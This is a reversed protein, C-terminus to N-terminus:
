DVMESDQYVIINEVNDLVTKLVQNDDDVLAIQKETLEKILNYFHM